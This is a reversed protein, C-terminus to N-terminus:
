VRCAFVVVRSVDLLLYPQKELDPKSGVRQIKIPQKETLSVLDGKSYRGSKKTVVWEYANGLKFLGSTMANFKTVSMTNEFLLYPVLFPFSKPSPLINLFSMTAPIYRVVWAPLTAEVDNLFIMKWSHLHARVAIDM